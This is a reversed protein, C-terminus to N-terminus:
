RNEADLFREVRCCSRLFCISFSFLSTVNVLIKSSGDTGKKEISLVFAEDAPTAYMFCELSTEAVLYRYVHTNEQM